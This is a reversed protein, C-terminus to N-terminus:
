NKWGASTVENKLVKIEPLGKSSGQFGKFRPFVMPFGHVVFLVPNELTKQLILNQFTLYFM